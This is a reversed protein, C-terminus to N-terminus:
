KCDCRKKVYDLLEQARNIQGCAAASKAACLLARLESFSKINTDGCKCNSDKNALTIESEKKDLCCHVQGDLLKYPTHTPEYTFPVANFVGSISFLFQWIGDPLEDDEGLGLMVNTIVYKVTNFISPFTGFVNIVVPVTAKPLYVTVTAITVDSTAPNPDGYGGENAVAMYAGTLEYISVSKNDSAPCIAIQPKGPM